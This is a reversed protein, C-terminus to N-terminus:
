DKVLKTSYQSTGAIMQLTYIGKAISLNSLPLRLRAPSQQLVTQYVVKGNMDLLRLTAKAQFAKGLQLDLFNNFPNSLVKVEDAIATKLLVINSFKHQGDVDIQKLRYYNSQQAMEKDTYTYSRSNNSNIAGPVFGITKYQVGDYSRQIEFGKNNTENETNWSLAAYKNQIVGKFNLLTVPLPAVVTGRWMGLGHTGIAFVNDTPRLSLSRVVVNGLDNPAQQTWVVTGAMSETKYLGVSTGVYYETVAGNQVIMAARVSPLTLNGEVNVWTPTVDGANNTYWINTTGYNSYVALLENQNSPNVSLGVVTRAGTMGPPTIDDPVVSPLANVPDVMRYVKGGSTGLYLRSSTTYSGRTTAMSRVYGEYPFDMLTWSTSNSTTATTNRQIRNSAGATVQCAYYMNQTNDPDLHFYTVFISTYTTNLGTPTIEANIFGNGLNNARRYIPGNQFGCFQQYPAPGTALGVAVGDGSLYQNFSTGGGLVGTTGNDQAGGIFDNVANDQKIAVYYYQYTPFNNNLATWSVTPATIDARQIGGDDGSFLITNSAPGFKLVHVDPHHNAYTAYGASSAYGGIRTWSTGGNTSRYANTGGIFITNPDDPKVAIELDYGGQVAFPDNGPSCGAEDPLTASLDTWTSTGFNWVFLEAEVAPAACTSTVNNHYLAYVLNENSPASALVIRGYTNVANWTAPTTAAGTGSIHAWTVGDTSTWVGDSSSGVSGALGAYLRGASTCIIDGVMLTNCGGVGLVLSWTAGQDASRIIGGLRAAYVDGNVPNVVLRSILDGCNDFTFVSGTNSAPLRSWTLGNDTSKFVGHGAYLASNGESASNGIAEGGAYYWVNRFGVRTDQAIATVTFVQDNPNQRSWSAGGNTSRFMGGSVSGALITNSTGDAVDFALARVRGGLNNPGQFIYNTATVRSSSGDLLQKTLIEKAQNLELERIGVPLKGTAPDKLLNFEDEVAKDFDAAPGNKQRFPKMALDNSSRPLQTRVLLFVGTFFCLILGSLMLKKLM